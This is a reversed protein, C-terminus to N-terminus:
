FLISSKNFWPNIYRCTRRLARCGLKDGIPFACQLPAMRYTGRQFYRGPLPTIHIRLIRFWHLPLCMLSIVISFQL